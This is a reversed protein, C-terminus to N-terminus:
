VVSVINKHKYTLELWMLQFSFKTLFWLTLPLQEFIKRVKINSLLMRTHFSKRLDHRSISVLDNKIKKMQTVISESEWFSIRVIIPELFDSWKEFYYFVVKLSSTFM